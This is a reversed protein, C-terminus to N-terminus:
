ILVGKRALIKLFLSSFPETEPLRFAPQFKWDAPLHPVNCDNCAIVAGSCRPWPTAGRFCLPPHRVFFAIGRRAFAHCPPCGLRQAAKGLPEHDGGSGGQWRSERAFEGPLSGPFAARQTTARRQVCQVVNCQLGPRNPQSYRQLTCRCPRASTFWRLLCEFHKTTGRGSIPDTLRLRSFWGGLRNGRDGSHGGPPLVQRFVELVNDDSITSRPPGLPAAFSACRSGAM